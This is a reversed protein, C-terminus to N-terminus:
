PYNMKDYGILPDGQEKIDCIIPELIGHLECFNHLVYYAVHVLMCKFIWMQNQLTNFANKIMIRGLYVNFLKKDITSLNRIKRIKLSIYPRIPYTLDCLIFPQLELGQINVM